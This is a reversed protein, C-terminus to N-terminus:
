TLTHCVAASVCSVVASLTPFSPLFPSPAAGPEELLTHGKYVWSVGEQEGLKDVDILVEWEPTPTRYSQLSTRRWLGRPNASDQWFNYLWPGIQRV